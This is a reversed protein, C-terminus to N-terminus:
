RGMGSLETMELNHIISEKINKETHNNPLLLTFTTGKGEESEVGIAGYLKKVSCMVIYLGLGTGGVQDNGRYFMDFIREHHEKKIGVGNDAVEIRLMEENQDVVSIKLFSLGRKKNAYKISNEILNRFVSRVLGPSSIFSSETKLELSFVINDFGGLHRFESYVGRIMSQLDITEARIEANKATTVIGLEDTITILRDWSESIQNFYDRATDDRVKLLANETLQKVQLLPNRIDHSTVYFLMELNRNSEKLSSMQNVLHQEMISFNTTLVDVENASNNIPLVTRATFDSKVFEDISRNLHTISRSVRRSILLSVVISVLIFIIGISLYVMKVGAVANKEKQASLEVMDTLSIEIQNFIDDTQKKLGGQSKLGLRKEYSVLNNFEKSYNVLVKLLDYKRLTNMSKDLALQEKLAKVLDNHKIIYPDEQRIIFDKEHRRLQLINILGIEEQYNELAHAYHRMQGEIGYDKFGRVLIQKIIVDTLLKYNSFDNKLRNITSNLGFGSSEQAQNLGALASDIKDCLGLHRTVLDSKGTEFFNPNITEKEFFDHTVQMDKLLLTHAHEAKHTVASLSAKTKEFYNFTIVSAAVTILVFLLLLALLRSRITTLM